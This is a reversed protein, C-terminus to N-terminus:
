FFSNKTHLHNQVEHIAIPKHCALCCFCEPHWVGGLVNVSRGDKIASNCGDCMSCPPNLALPLGNCRKLMKQLLDDRKACSICNPQPVCDIFLNKVDEDILPELHYTPGLRPFEFRSTVLLKCHPFQILFKELLSEEEPRVDDSSHWLLRQIILKVNPTKSLSIFFIQKFKGKVDADHCLKTVLTTKGCASPASVVITVVGDEFPIKKLERLPRDLWFITAEEPQPELCLEMFEKGRDSLLDIKTTVSAMSRMSHLQNKHQILQLEIQCFRLFDQNIGKIERTYLAKKTISYWQIRSCKRVIEEASQMTKILVKLEGKGPDLGEQMLDIEKLVPVLREMTSALDQSLPKFDKVKKAEAIVLKLIESFPAGLAAGGVLSAVDSIPM